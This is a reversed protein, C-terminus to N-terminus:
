VANLEDVAQTQIIAVSMHGTMHGTYTVHRSEDTQVFINQLVMISICVSSFSMMWGESQLAEERERKM